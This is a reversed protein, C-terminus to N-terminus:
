SFPCRLIVDFGNAPRVLSETLTLSLYVGLNQSMGNISQPFPWRKAIHPCSIVDSGTDLHKMDPTMSLPPPMEDDKPQGARVGNLNNPYEVVTHVEGGM